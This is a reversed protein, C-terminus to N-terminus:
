RGAKSFFAKHSPQGIPLLISAATRALSFPSVSNITWSDRAPSHQHTNPKSHQQPTCLHQHTLCLPFPHLCNAACATRTTRTALIDYLFPVVLMIIFVRTDSGTCSKLPFTGSPPRSARHADRLLNSFCICAIYLGCLLLFLFLFITQFRRIIDEKNLDACSAM